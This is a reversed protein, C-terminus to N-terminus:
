TYEKKQMVINYPGTFDQLDQLQKWIPTLSVVFNVEGFLANGKGSGGLDGRIGRILDSSSSSRRRRRKQGRSVMAAEVSVIPLIKSLTPSFFFAGVDSM